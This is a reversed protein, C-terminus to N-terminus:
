LDRVLLKKRYQTPSMGAFKKFAEYFTSRSNFGSELGISLITYKSFNPDCLKAQADKVRYENIFDPFNCGALNNVLQSLYNPSINLKGAVSELGLTEDRYLKEETLLYCLEKFYANDNTITLKRKKCIVELKAAVLRTILQFLLLHEKDFFDKESHESDLVGLVKNKVLIPVTLESDRKKDDIIYRPDKSVNHILEWRTTKAVTGVIGTGLPIEIPSLIKRYDVSKNGYAAMQVLVDRDDDLWYIVCDELGLQSICNKCIDWMVQQVDNKDFLSTAFYSLISTIKHQDGGIRTLENSKFIKNLGSLNFDNLKEQLAQDQSRKEKLHINLHKRSTRLVATYLVLVFVWLPYYVQHYDLTNDLKLFVNIFIWLSCLIVIAFYVQHLWGVKGIVVSHPLADLNKEYDRIAGYGWAVMSVSFILALIEVIGGGIIAITSTPLVPHDLLSKTKVILYWVFCVFFPIMWHYLYKKIIRDKGLFAYIFALFFVPSLLEFPQMLFLFLPYAKTVGVDMCMVQLILLNTTIIFGYFFVHANERRFRFLNWSAYLIILFAGITILLNFYNWSIAM